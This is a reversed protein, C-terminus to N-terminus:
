TLEDLLAKAEKLDRTDFGETFWDYIPALLERPRTLIVPYGPLSSSLLSVPNHPDGVATVSKRRNDDLM